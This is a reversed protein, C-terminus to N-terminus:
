GPGQATTEGFQGATGREGAATTAPDPQSVSRSLFVGDLEPDEVPLERVAPTGSRRGRAGPARLGRLAAADGGACRHQATEWFSAERM